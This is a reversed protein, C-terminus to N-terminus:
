QRFTGLYAGRTGPIDWRTKLARAKVAGELTVGAVANELNVLPPYYATENTCICDGKGAKRVSVEAIEGAEPELDM